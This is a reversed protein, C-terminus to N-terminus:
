SSGYDRREITEFIDVIRITTKEDKAIYGHPHLTAETESERKALQELTADEMEHRRNRVNQGHM